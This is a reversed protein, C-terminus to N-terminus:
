HPSKTDKGTDGLMDWRGESDGDTNGTDGLLDWDGWQPSM